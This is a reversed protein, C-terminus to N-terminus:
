LNCSPPHFVRNAIHPRMRYKSCWFGWHVQKLVLLLRLLFEGVGVWKLCISIRHAFIINLIALQSVASDSSSGPSWSLCFRAFWADSCPSLHTLHFLLSRLVHRHARISNLVLALLNCPWLRRCDSSHARILSQSFLRPLDVRAAVM